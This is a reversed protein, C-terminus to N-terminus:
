DDRDGEIMKVIEEWRWGRTFSICALSGAGYQSIEMNTVTGNEDFRVRVYPDKEALLQKILEEPTWATQLNYIWNRIGQLKVVDAMSVRFDKFHDHDWCPKARIERINM